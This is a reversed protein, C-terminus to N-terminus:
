SWRSKRQQAKMALLKNQQQVRKIQAQLEAKRAQHAKQQAARKDNGSM